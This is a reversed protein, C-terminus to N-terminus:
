RLRRVSGGAGRAIWGELELCVLSRALVVGDFGAMAGVTEASMTQKGVLDLIARQEAPMEDPLAGLDRVANEHELEVGIREIVDGACTCPAAGDRLLEHPGASVDLRVDGPVAFVDRGISLAHRATSLAGSREGAQVVITALSLAAILRNRHTFRHKHTGTGRQHEAVLAGDAAIRAYLDRNSSPYCVDIGGPLVAITTGRELAGLHAESDIGRALGSVVCLGATAFESALAYAIERGYPTPTRTGVIAVAPPLRDLRRGAVWLRSPPDSLHGLKEPYEPSDPGLTRSELEEALVRGQETRFRM